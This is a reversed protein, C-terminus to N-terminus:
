GTPPGDDALSEPPGASLGRRRNADVTPMPAAGQAIGWQRMMYTQRALLIKGARVDHHTKVMVDALSGAAWLLGSFVVLRVTEGTAVGVGAGGPPRHAWWDFFQWVAMALIILACGQIVLTAAHLGKQPEIDEERVEVGSLMPRTGSRAPGGTGERVTQITPQEM